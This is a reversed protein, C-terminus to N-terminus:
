PAETDTLTKHVIGVSVNVGAATTRISEGHQRRALIAAREDDDVVPRRGGVRGRKRAAELGNM